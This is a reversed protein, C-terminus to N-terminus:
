VRGNWVYVHRLANIYGHVFGIMEETLPREDQRTTVYQGATGVFPNFETKVNVHFRNAFEEDLKAPWEDRILASLKDKRAM